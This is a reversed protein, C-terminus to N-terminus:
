RIPIYSIGNTNSCGGQRYFVPLCTYPRLTTKSVCFGIQSLAGGSCQVWPEVGVANAIATRIQDESYRATSSPSVGGAVLVAGVDVTERLTIAAQFYDLEKALLPSSKACSGHKEYEHKWFNDHKTDVFANPWYRDLKGELVSIEAEEFRPQPKCYQPYTTDNRNPWLGHIGWAEHPVQCKHRREQMACLQPEWSVVFLLFDWSQDANEGTPELEQNNPKPIRAGNTISLVALLVVLLLSRMNATSMACTSPEIAQRKPFSHVSEPGSLM